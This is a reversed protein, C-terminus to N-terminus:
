LTMWGSMPGDDTKLTLCWVVWRCWRVQEQLEKAERRAAELEAALAMMQAELPAIRQNYMAAATAEGASDRLYQLFGAMHQPVFHSPIM